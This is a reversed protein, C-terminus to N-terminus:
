IFFTDHTIVREMNKKCLPCTISDYINNIDSFNDKITNVLSEKNDYIIDDPINDFLKLKDTIDLKSFNEVCEDNIKIDNIYLFYKLLDYNASVINNDDTYKKLKIIDIIKPSKIDFEIKIDKNYIKTINNFVYKNCNEIINNFNLDYNFNGSCKSCKISLSLPESVNNNRIQALISIFDIETISDISFSNDICLTKILGLKTIQYDTDNLSIISKAISKRLGVNTGKFAFEKKLSPIYVNYIHESYSKEFLSVVDNIKM